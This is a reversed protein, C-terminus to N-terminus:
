PPSSPAGGATSSPPTAPPAPNPHPHHNASFGWPRAGPPVRSRPKSIRRSYPAFHIRTVQDHKIMQELVVASLTSKTVSSELVRANSFIDRTYKSSYLSHSSYAHPVPLLSTSLGTSLISSTFNCRSLSWGLYSLSGVCEEEIPFDISSAEVKAHRYIASSYQTSVNEQMM